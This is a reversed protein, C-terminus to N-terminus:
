KAISKRERLRQEFTTTRGEGVLNYLNPYCDECLEWMTVVRHPTILHLKAFTKVETKCIDCKYVIM